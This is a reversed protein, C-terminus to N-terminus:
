NAVAALELLRGIQPAAQWVGDNQGQLPNTFYVGADFRVEILDSIEADAPVPVEAVQRGSMPLSQAVKGGILVQVVGGRLAPADPFELVVHVARPRTASRVAFISHPSLVGGPYVGGVVCRVGDAPSMVGDELVFASPIREVEFTVRTKAELVPHEALNQWPVVAGLGKVELYGRATFYAALVRALHGHGIRNPHGDLPLLNNATVEEPGLIIDERPFSEPLVRSLGPALYDDYLYCGFRAGVAALRERLDVVERAAQEFRRRSEPILDSAVLGWASANKRLFYTPSGLSAHSTGRLRQADYISVLTHGFVFGSGSDMDNRNLALVVLDPQLVHLNHVAFRVSSFLNWGPVAIPFVEFRNIGQPRTANRTLLEELQPAVGDQYVVGQAAIMSDGLLLVRFVGQKKPQLERPDRMGAWNTRLPVKTAWSPDDRLGPYFVFDLGTDPVPTFIEKDSLDGM